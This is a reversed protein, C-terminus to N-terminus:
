AVPQVDSWMPGTANAPRRDTPRARGRVTPPSAAVGAGDFNVSRPAVREAAPADHVVDDTPSVDIVFPTPSLEEEVDDVLVPCTSRLPGLKGLAVQGSSKERSTTKNM